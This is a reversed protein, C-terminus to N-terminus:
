AFIKGSKFSKHNVIDNVEWMKGVYRQVLNKELFISCIDLIDSFINEYNKRSSQKRRENDTFYRNCLEENHM